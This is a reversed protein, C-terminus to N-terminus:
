LLSRQCICWGIVCFHSRVKLMWEKYGVYYSRLWAVGSPGRRSGKVAIDHFRSRGPRIMPSCLLPLEPGMQTGAAASAWAAPLSLSWRFELAGRVGYITYFDFRRSFM